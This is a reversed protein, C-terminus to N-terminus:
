IANMIIIGKPAIIFDFSEWEDIKLVDIYALIIKKKIVLKVAHSPLGIYGWLKDPNNIDYMAPIGNKIFM